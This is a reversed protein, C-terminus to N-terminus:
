YKITKIETDKYYIKLIDEATKGNDALYKAGNQSMGCGHGMGGGYLRLSALKGGEDYIKDFSFFASPLLSYNYIQSGDNLNLEVRGGSYSCPRLVSRINYETYIDASGKEFTLRLIMINGGEGRQVVEAGTFNGPSSLFDSAATNGTHLKAMGKEYVPKINNVFSQRIEEATMTVNWRFWKSWSDYAFAKTNKFYALAAKEDSFDVGTNNRASLYEKATSPFTNDSLDAWVESSSSTAGGSSAFFCASIIEGGYSLCMGKTKEAAKQALEGSPINNYVQCMVSDDCDAGYSTYKGSFFQNYAYSRACVAQAMLATLGYSEPMESFLVGEIYSEMDTENVILFGNETKEIEICGSYSPHMGEPYSRSLSEITIDGGSAKVYLRSSNKFLGKDDNVSIDIDKGSYVNEGSNQATLTGTLRVNQHFYGNFGDTSILVRMLGNYKGDFVAARCRGEKVFLEYNGGSIFKLPVSAAQEGTLSYMATEDATITGNAKTEIKDDSFKVVSSSIKEYGGGVSIASGNKVTLDYVGDTIESGTVNKLLRNGGNFAVSLTNGSVHVYAGTIYACNDKVGTVALLEDNKIYAEVTKDVYADMFLGGHNLEGVGTSVKWSSMQGEGATAFISIEKKEVGYESLRDAIGGFLMDCWLQYSVPIDSKEINKDATPIDLKKLIIQAQRYTLPDMPSFTDGEGHMIEEKCVNNIYGAYWDGEIIDSFDTTGLVGGNGFIVSVMRAALARYVPFDKNYDAPNDSGAVMTQGGNEVIVGPSKVQRGMCGTFTLAVMVSVAYVKLKKM